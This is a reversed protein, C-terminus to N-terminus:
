GCASEFVPLLERGYSERAALLNTNTQTTAGLMCGAETLLLQGCLKETRNLRRACFGELRGAALWAVGLAASGMTRESFRAQDNSTDSTLQQRKNNARNNNTPGNQQQRLAVMADDGHYFDVLGHASITHQRLRMTGLFAGHARETWFTEYRLPDFICCSSAEDASQGWGLITAFHPLGSRYNQAGSIPEIFLTLGAQTLSRLANKLKNKARTHIKEFFEQRRQVHAFKASIACSCPHSKSPPPPSCARAHRPEPFFGDTLM